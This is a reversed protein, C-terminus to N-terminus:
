LNYWKKRALDGLIYCGVILAYFITTKEYWKIFLCLSPFSGSDSVGVWDCVLYRLFCFINCNLFLHHVSEVGGCRSVRMFGEDLLVGHRGLIDKTHLRSQLLRWAFISVKLMVNKHWILDFVVEVQHMQPSTLYHHVGWVSYVRSRDLLRHWRDTVEVQLHINSIIMSCEKALEEEWTLLRRCWTWVEDGEGWGLAQMDAVSVCKDLALDFLRSFRERLPVEGAWRDLM